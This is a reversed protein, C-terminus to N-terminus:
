GERKDRNMAFANRANAIFRTVKDFGKVGPTSEVGSSVDVGYPRVAHIASAVNEPTLGGALVLRRRRAVRAAVTWDVMAGTGGRRIPDITDLLLATEESWADCADEV